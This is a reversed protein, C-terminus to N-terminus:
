ADLTEKLLTTFSEEQMSRQWQTRPLDASFTMSSVLESSVLVPTVIHACLATYEKVLLSLSIIRDSDPQSLSLMMEAVCFSM